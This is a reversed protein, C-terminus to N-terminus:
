ATAVRQWDEQNVTGQPNLNLWAGARSWQIRFIWLLRIKLVARVWHSRAGTLFFDPVHARIEEPLLILQWDDPDGEEPQETTSTRRSCSAGMSWTLPVVEAPDLNYDRIIM